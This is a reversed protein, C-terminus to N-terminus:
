QSTASFIEAIAVGEVDVKKCGPGAGEVTCAASLGVGTKLLYKSINARERERVHVCACQYIM